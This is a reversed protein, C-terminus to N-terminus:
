LMCPRSLGSHSAGLRDFGLLVLVRQAKPVLHGPCDFLLLLAGPTDKRM